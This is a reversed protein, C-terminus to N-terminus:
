INFADLIDEARARVSERVGANKRLEDVTVNAVAREADRTIQELAEDKTLNLARVDALLGSFSDLLTDWFRNPKGTTPDYGLRDVLHTLGASLRGRVDAMADDVRRQLEVEYQEVLLQRGEAEIDVRFDGAEPVPTFAVRFRYKDRIEDPAPYDDRNFMGGLQFAQAAILNPYVAVFDDVLQWFRRERADIEQKFTTVFSEVTLLRLGMDSWPLTQTYMWNRVAAAHQIIAEHQAVGPLLAKNVRAANANSNKSTNVESTVKRDLKRATWTSISLEVLMCSATLTNNRTSITM